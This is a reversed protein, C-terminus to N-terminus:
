KNTKRLDLKKKLRDRTAMKSLVDQRFATKGGRGGGGAAGAMNKMMSAFMPNNLISSAGGGMGGLSGMMNMAEKVLDEQNIEGSSMKNTITSTVQQVINGLVNNGNNGSLMGFVDSPSEIKLNSLDINQSVEKAIECIKSNGFKSFIDAMPDEGEATTGAAAAERPEGGESVEDESPTSPTPLKLKAFLYRLDDDLIDEVEDDFAASDGRQFANLARLSTDFLGDLDKEDSVKKIYSFISLIYITNSLQEIDETSDVIQKYSVDKVVEVDQHEDLQWDSSRIHTGLVEWFHDMYESSAKDIVKYNKKITGHLEDSLEKIDRVFVGFFKNFAYTAKDVDAM